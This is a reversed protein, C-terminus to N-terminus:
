FINPFEKDSSNCNVSNGYLPSCLVGKYIATCKCKNLFVCGKQFMNPIEINPIYM